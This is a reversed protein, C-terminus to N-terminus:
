RRLVRIAKAAGELLDAIAQREIDADAVTLGCAECAVLALTRVFSMPLSQKMLKNRDPYGASFSKSFDPASLGGFLSALEKDQMRSRAGALLVLEVLTVTAVQNAHSATATGVRQVEM